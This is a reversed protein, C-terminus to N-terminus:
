LSECACRVGIFASVFWLGSFCSHVTRAGSPVGHSWNGGALLQTTQWDYYEHVNGNNPNGGTTDGLPSVKDWAWAGGVPASTANYARTTTGHGTGGSVVKGARGGDYSPFTYDTAGTSGMLVTGGNANLVVNRLNEWVLAVADRIGISSVANAVNGATTRGTNTTASWANVNDGDNGQPSGYASRCWEDYDLLRKGCMLARDNFSFWNHGETGTLPTGGFKSQIGGSGNDSSLYIDVWLGAGAYVMGEPSCKPRHKLTWVSRPVIGDYVNSEWGTGYAVNSANVPRLMSDVRRAKGYHFGGVKRSNTANYGAPFTTNLSIMYKENDTGDDCIYVYYDKGVTFAGGADLNGVGINTASTVFVAGAVTIVCNENVTIVADGTAKLYENVPAVVDSMAALKATTILALPNTKTPDDKMLRSM